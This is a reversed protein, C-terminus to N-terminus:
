STRFVLQIGREELSLMMEVLQISDVMLDEVFYAEPSLKSEDADLEEALLRRFEEFTMRPM